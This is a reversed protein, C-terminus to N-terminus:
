GGQWVPVELRSRARSLSLAPILPQPAAYPSLVRVRGDEGVRSWARAAIAVCSSESLDPASM